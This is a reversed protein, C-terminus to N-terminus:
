STGADFRDEWGCCCTELCLLVWAWRLMGRFGLLWPQITVDRRCAPQLRPPVLRQKVLSALSAVDRVWDCCPVLLEKCVHVM